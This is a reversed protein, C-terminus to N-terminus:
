VIEIINRSHVYTVIRIFFVLWEAVSDYRGNRLGLDRFVLSATSYHQKFMGNIIYYTLIYKGTRCQSNVSRRCVGSQTVPWFGEALWCRNNSVCAFPPRAEQWSCAGSLSSTLLLYVPTDQGQPLHCGIVRKGVVSVCRSDVDCQGLLLERTHWLTIIPCLWHIWSCFTIRWMFYPFVYACGCAVSM